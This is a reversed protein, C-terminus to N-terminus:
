IGAAWIAVLWGPGPCMCRARCGSRCWDGTRTSSGFESARWRRVSRTRDRSCTMSLSGTRCRSWLPRPSGTSGLGRRTVWPVLEAARPAEGALIVARLALGDVRGDGAAALGVLGRFASPTQHLVTVKERVLVDLLEDPSLTAAGALVVVSGGFLLAGWIEWVSVDFAFSHFLALVDDPGFGFRGGAAAMFSSVNAHTAMVGKPRGTSGSTFMVYAVHDPGTAPPPNRSPWGPWDVEDLVVLQGAFVGALRAAGAADTVVVRVGADGVMFGLREDPLGPELPLYGAGSKWVGLLAPVLWEGRPLCVGVVVEPGAGVSRLLWGLRNARVNVEHYSSVVGDFVVAAADARERVVGEFMEVADSTPGTPAPVAALLDEREGHPLYTARADGDPGAAMSELVARYMAALRRANARSLVHTNTTLCMSGAITAVMLGFETTGEGDEGDVDIDATTGEAQRYDMFDFIVEIPHRGTGAERQIAPLPFRRHPWLEVERDFVDRVLARWTQPGRAFAFPLTNVYMGHVGDAGAVEPRADCVLGTFFREEETLQSIVKLHAAHLVAKISASAAAALARLAPALDRYPVRIEYGERPRDAPEGWGLPLAFRAYQDVVGRWYARDETSELSALEAAVFDAYRVGSPEARVVDTPEVRVAAGPPSPDSHQRYTDLVEALLTQFDWGGTVLHSVTLTLWWAGTDLHAAVRLLGPRDLDFPTARQADLFAPRGAATAYVEVPVDAAAHVLQLPVSYGVLHFSTRLTEHRHVVAAVAAKLVAADLPRDDVVRFSAVIHYMVRTTDNQMEVAMGLQAQTAPYADVVGVPLRGRDAASIQAFSAVPQFLPGSPADAADVLGALRAVTQHVFVDRVGVDLGAARLAGVVGVARLSDGGVDFFSDNIGIRDLGLVDLWVAAIREQTPTQPPLYERANVRASADPVPLAGRDLKGTTTLPIRALTVFAAPVMYDPLREALSARLQAPSPVAAGAPVLYGVLGGDHVVVVADRIGSQAALAAAIEGLEIRYGRIKVQDDIRGIMELGGDFGRRALDGSRYLRQGPAGFPDPVFREATLIPRNLYCRALGPGGV